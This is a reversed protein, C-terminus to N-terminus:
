VNTLKEIIETLISMLSKHHQHEIYPNGIDRLVNEM